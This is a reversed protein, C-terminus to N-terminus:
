NRTPPSKLHMTAPGPGPGEKKTWKLRKRKRKRPRAKKLLFRRPLDGRRNLGPLTAVPARTSGIRPHSNGSSNKAPPPRRGKKKMKQANSEKKQEEMRVASYRELQYDSMDTKVLEYVDGQDTEVLKPLLGEQPSRFYSTLGLIRRAFVDAQKMSGTDMDVFMDLFADKNDPLCKYLDVKPAVVVQLGNRRLIDKVKSVFKADDLNGTEDLCVGRYAPDAAEQGAGGHHPERDGVYQKHPPIVYEEQPNPDVDMM